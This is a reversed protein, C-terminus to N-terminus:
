RRRPPLMGDGAGRSQEAAGPQVDALASALAADIRQVVAPLPESRISSVAAVIARVAAQAQYANRQGLARELAGAQVASVGYHAAIRALAARAILRVAAGADGVAQYLGGLATVFSITGGAAAEPQSQLGGLRAGARWLLMFVCLLLQALAPMGGLQRLYQMLSRREGVGLHYEDFLVPGAGAYGQLLRRFLTAGSSSEIESNQLMNASALVIVHGQGRRLAIGLPVLGGTSSETDTEPAGLLTEVKADEALQFRGPHQFQVIPLGQLAPAMPVGWTGPNPTDELQGAEEGAGADRDASVAAPVPAASPPPKAPKAPADEAADDGTDAAACNPEFEFAVPLGTPLYHRAGAVLLLGGRDIWRLLEEREYRSLARAQRTECDGLAVLTGHAPLHALDQSWRRTAFGLESLVLYLARVGSPGSGYSSFARAFRGREAVRRLTVGLLLVALLAFLALTWRMARTM